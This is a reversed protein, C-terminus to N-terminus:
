GLLSRLRKANARAGFFDRLERNVPKENQWADYAGRIWLYNDLEVATATVGTEDLLRQRDKVFANYRNESGRVAGSGLHLRLSDVALTDMIPCAEADVFRHCFKSAFSFHQKSRGEGVGPLCAIKEVLRPGPAPPHRRMIRTIHEAMRGVAYLNTGYFQNVVATKLLTENATFGPLREALETLAHDNANAFHLQRRIHGAAVIQDQSLQLM